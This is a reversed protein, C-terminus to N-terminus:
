RRPSITYNFSSSSLMNGATTGNIVEVNISVTDNIPTVTPSESSFIPYVTSTTRPRGRARAIIQRSGAISPTSSLNVANLLLTLDTSTGGAGYDTSEYFRIPGDATLANTTVVRYYIKFQRINASSAVDVRTVLVLCEGYTVDTNYADNELPSVQTALDVSGDLATYYPFLYFESADLTEKAVHATFYRLNANTSLRQTDRYMTRLGHLFTGLAMGMALTFITMSILVEVLTFGGATRRSPTAPKM